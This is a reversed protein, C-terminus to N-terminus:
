LQRPATFQITLTYHFYAADAPVEFDKPIYNYNRDSSSAIIDIQGLKKAEKTAKTAWVGTDLYVARGQEPLLNMPVMAFQHYRRGQLFLVSYGQPVNLLERALREAEIVVEEFAKSRHSIELISLGTGNFDIVARSAEEFVEKPLVCPGAGFNHKM